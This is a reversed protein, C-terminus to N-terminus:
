KIVGKQRFLALLIDFAGIMGLLQNQSDVVPLQQCQHLKMLRYAEELSSDNKVTIFTTQMFDYVICLEGIEATIDMEFIDVNYEDVFPVTRLIDQASNSFSEVLQQFSVVGILIKHEDIVPVLPFSHFNCFLEILAALTTSPRVAIIKQSMVESVKM